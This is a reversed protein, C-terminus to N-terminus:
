GDNGGKTRTKPPPATPQEMPLRYSSNAPGNLARATLFIVVESKVKQNNTKKFLHGVIPLDMLIPVGSAIRRDQEQILGGIALTEGSLMNITSQVVRDSTQPLQGGGPVATFGKLFSVVPRLDMTLNGEAGIRALVNLRVGVKVEDTTVTVGNQTSQISKIYRVTDGVFLETERGDLALLNPRAIIKNTDFTRDLTAGVDGSFGNGSFNGGIANNSSTQSNNLRLIKVAGGGLINWDIGAKIADDRTMEVVRLELAVQKPALDVVALYGLARSLQDESGRLILRMPVASTEFDTFPQSLRGPKELESGVKQGTAQGGEPAAAGPQTTAGPQTAQNAQVIGQGPQYLRPNGASPPPIIVRLGPIQALLDERLARPDSFKVDYAVMTTLIDDGSDLDGLTRMVRSVEHERGSLVISQRSTSGKPTAAIDVNGLKGSKAGLADLLDIANGGRVLYQQRVMANTTPYDIGMAVAIQSDLRKVLVEVEDLRPQPGILVVYQDKAKQTNAARTEIVAGKETEQGGKAEAAAKEEDSQVTQKTEVTLEESPLVIEFRGNPTELPVSKLVAAKIQAGEGSFIPVVRTESGIDTKSGGVQRIAESFKSATTVIYTRGVQAYRVGAMTTVLDLAEKLTVNTLSVTLNGKVEPATVINVGTQLALAKLIQVVDTNAFDLSVLQAFGSRQMQPAPELPPVVNPFANRDVRPAKSGPQSRKQEEELMAIARQLESQDQNAPATEQVGKIVVPNRPAPKPDSKIAKGLLGEAERMALDDSSAEKSTSSNEASGVVIRWGDNVAVVSPVQASTFRLHVRVKPPRAQFWGYQVYVLGSHDIPIRKGTGFLHANFEFLYSKGGFAVIEKPKSLAEGRVHVEVGGAFTNTEVSRVTAQADAVVTAGLAVGLL